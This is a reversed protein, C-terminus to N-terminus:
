LCLPDPQQRKGSGSYAVAGPPLAQAIRGAADYVFKLERGFHNRVTILLGAIPAVTIPTTADSYTLTTLWGNRAKISQLRGTADYTEVSDDEFVTYTFGLLVNNADRLEALLDKTTSTARWTASHSRLSCCARATPAGLWWGWRTAPSPQRRIELSM